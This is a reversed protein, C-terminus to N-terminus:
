GMMVNVKLYREPHKEIDVITQPAEDIAIVKTLIRRVDVKNGRVLEVAEPFEGASTRGGRIDVEKKTIMGTPLETNGKPWGTFVIRGAYAVIDLTGVIAAHAGSSELVVEAGRGDTIEMIKGVVDGATPNVVHRVGAARADELRDAVPDIVIPEAGYVRATMAELLGIPGAGFIAVHEGPAVGGRHLGHLAIVLPEVMPLIDRPIDEPVKHLMDAPHAFYETMGGDVHVGLVRLHECCNTRGLSCPYCRGCYLYPDVVVRDGERLGKPNDAPISLVEGAIEHGIVRPYSVLQNAGRYAGIDSGCIGASIVRILADGPGPVPKQLEALEVQWPNELKVGKM